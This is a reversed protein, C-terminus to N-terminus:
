FPTLGTHGYAASRIEGIEVGNNIIAEGGWLQPAADELVFQVIRKSLHNPDEKAKLLAEKGIFGCPKEMDVAFGLGAQMPTIVPTLERGWARYGKELRLGELTYYGADLIGFAAGERMLHDYVGITFEVPVLLEWGLEGVYTMRNALVTAYGLDIEQVTSFPFEENSLDKKTLAKLLDRSKPGMVSLVSWSSTVDTLFVHADDSFSRKIWDADRVTQASGTVVMFEKGGLRMVTLDSEYGGQKNLLGTYITRGVEVDINATCILSLERCADRGQISFKSFSSQDFVAVGERVAAHEKAVADHWNQRGFSYETEPNQGDRAFWNAREWGMKSGFVAGKVKLRDFLASCRFPRATDLERNPWPM